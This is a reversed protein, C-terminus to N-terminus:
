KATRSRYQEIRRKIIEGLKTAVSQAQSEMSVRMFPQASMKATGFENAVARGDYPFGRSEYFSRKAKKREKGSVGVYQSSFEKKLKKPINKTTVVAIVTDKESVYKSKKDQRTPRRGMITLTNALVSTDKPALQKAMALVPKMAEKVAPLLIKSNAKKDGIEDALQKFIELTEAMGQIQFTSNTQAM